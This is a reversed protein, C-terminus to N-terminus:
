GVGVGAAAFLDPRIQPPDHLPMVMQELRRAATECYRESVEVGVAAAGARKAAALTSGVGAFPDVVFRAGVTEIARLPLWVPFPAPHGYDKTEAPIRWVDGVASAKRDRLRFRDKAMVVLWEAQPCYHGDGLGVGQQRDWIVIQRVPLGFDFDLPLRYRKHLIRPKHNYFISGHPALSEWCLALVARQWRAYEAPEVDDRHDAYGEVFRRGKNSRSGAYLRGNATGGGASIGLNYPPSTFILDVGSLTPLVEECNGHYIVIGSKTDQYYPKM